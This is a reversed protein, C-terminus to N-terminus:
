NGPVAHIEPFFLDQWSKPRNRISGVDAMFSAYKMVNEPSTTFRMDPDKLLEIVEELKWGKGDSTGLFIEAAVRRDTNILAIAKELAKLIAGYTRPNEDHFKSTTYLMTFTSPGGMVDNSTMITRVDPTRREYHHFPPSTFHATIESQGSLLATQGDPHSM